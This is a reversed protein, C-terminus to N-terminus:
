LAFVEAIFVSTHNPLRFRHSCEAPWVLSPAGRTCYEMGTSHLYTIVGASKSDETCLHVYSLYKVGLDQLRQHVGWESADKKDIFLWLTPIYPGLASHMKDGTLRNLWFGSNECQYYLRVGRGVPHQCQQTLRSAPASHHRARETGYRSTWQDPRPRLLVRESGSAAEGSQHM